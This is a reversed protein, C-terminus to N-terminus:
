SSFHLTLTKSKNVPHSLVLQHWLIQLGLPLCPLNHLKDGQRIKGGKLSTIINSCDYATLKALWQSYTLHIQKSGKHAGCELRPSVWNSIKTGKGDRVNNGTNGTKREECLGIGDEELRLSIALNILNFSLHDILSKMIINHRIVLLYCWM